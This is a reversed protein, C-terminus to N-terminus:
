PLGMMFGRFFLEESIATALSTILIVTSINLINTNIKWYGQTFVIFIVYMVGIGVFGLVISSLNLSPKTIRFSKLDSKIIKSIWITFIVFTLVVILLHFLIYGLDGMGIIPILGILPTLGNILTMIFIALLCQLILNVIKRM